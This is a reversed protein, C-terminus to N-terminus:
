TLLSNFVFESRKKLEFLNSYFLICRNTACVALNELAVARLSGTTAVATLYTTIIKQTFGRQKTLKHRSAVIGRTTTMREERSVGPVNALELSADQNVFAIALLL